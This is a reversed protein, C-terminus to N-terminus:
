IKFAYLFQLPQHLTDNWSANSGEHTSPSLVPSFQFHDVCYCSLPSLWSVTWMTESWNTLDPLPLDFCFPHNRFILNVFMLTGFCQSEATIKSKSQDPRQMFRLIFSRKNIPPRHTNNNLTNVM